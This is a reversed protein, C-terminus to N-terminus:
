IISLILFNLCGHFFALGYINNYKYRVIGFSIGHFFTFLISQLSTLHGIAFIISSLLIKKKYNGDLENFIIERFWLEETFGILLFLNILNFISYDPIFSFNNTISMDLILFLIIFPISFIITKFFNKKTFGFKIKNKNSILIIGSILLFVRFFISINSFNIIKNIHFFCSALIFPFFLIKLREKM